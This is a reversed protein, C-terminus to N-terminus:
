VSPRFLQNKGTLCLQKNTAVRVGLVQFRECHEPPITNQHRSSWMGMWADFDKDSHTIVERCTAGRHCSFSLGSRNSLGPSLRVNMLYIRMQSVMAPLRNLEACLVPRAGLANRLM